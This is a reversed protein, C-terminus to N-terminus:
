FVEARYTAESWPRCCSGSLVWVHSLWREARSRVNYDIEWKQTARRDTVTEADPGMTRACHENRVETAARAHTGEVHRPSAGRNPPIRIDHCGAKILTAYM